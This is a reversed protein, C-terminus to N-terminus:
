DREGDSLWSCETRRKRQHIQYCRRCFCHARHASGFADDYLSMLVPCALEKSFEEGNKTEEAGRFRTNQLLVVDGDKM